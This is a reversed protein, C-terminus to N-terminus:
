TWRRVEKSKFHEEILKDAHDMLIKAMKCSERTVGAESAEALDFILMKDINFLKSFNEQDRMYLNAIASGASISLGVSEKVSEEWSSIACQSAIHFLSAKHSIKERKEALLDNIQDQFAGNKKIIVNYLIAFERLREHRGYEDLFALIFIGTTYSRVLVADEM